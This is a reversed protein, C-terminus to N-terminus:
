EIVKLALVGSPKFCLNYLAKGADNWEYCRHNYQDHYTQYPPPWEALASTTTKGVVAKAFAQAYQQDTFSSPHTKPMAAATTSAASTTTTSGSGCAAGAVVLLTSVGVVAAVQLLTM